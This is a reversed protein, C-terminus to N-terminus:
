FAEQHGRIVLLIVFDVFWLDDSSQSNKHLIIRRRIYSILRFHLCRNTENILYWLLYEEKFTYKCRRIKRLRM